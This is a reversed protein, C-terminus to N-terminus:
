RARSCVESSDCNCGWNGEAECLFKFRNGTHLGLTPIEHMHLWQSQAMFFCCFIYAPVEVDSSMVHHVLTKGNCILDSSRLRLEHLDVHQIDHKRLM